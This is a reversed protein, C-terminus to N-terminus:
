CAYWVGNVLRYSQYLHFPIPERLTPPLPRTLSNGFLNDPEHRIFKTNRCGCPCTVAIGIFHGTKGDNVKSYTGPQRSFPSTHAPVETAALTAGTPVVERSQQSHQVDPM